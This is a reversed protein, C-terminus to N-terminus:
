LLLILMVVTTEPKRKTMPWVLLFSYVFLLNLVKPFIGNLTTQIDVCCYELSITVNIWTAAFCLWRCCLVGIMVTPPTSEPGVPHRLLLSSGLSYGQNFWCVEHRLVYHPQVVCLVTPWFPGGKSSPWTCNWSSNSYFYWIISDGLGALAWLVSAFVM